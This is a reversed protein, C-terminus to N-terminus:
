IPAQTSMVTDLSVADAAKFQRILDWHIGNRSFREWQEIRAIEPVIASPVETANVHLGKSLVCTLSFEDSSKTAYEIKRRHVKPLTPTTQDVTTELYHVSDKSLLTSDDFRADDYRVILNQSLGVKITFHECHRAERRLQDFLKSDVTSEFVIDPVTRELAAINRWLRICDVFFVEDCDRDYDQLRNAFNADVFDIKITKKPAPTTKQAGVIQARVTPMEVSSLTHVLGTGIAVPQGVMIRETAGSLSDQKGFSAGEEFVDVSQEFSARQLLSAGLDEMNSRHMACVKGTRCMTDALLWTHRM